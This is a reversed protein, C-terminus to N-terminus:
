IERSGCYFCSFPCGRIAFINKFASLPYLNYDKLVEPAAEHPFCLTDLNDIFERPPNEITEEGKRYVIGKVAGLGKHEGITNLLEVITREGEGKVCIDIDPCVLVDKGVMSPHPGGIVVITENNIEKVLKAINQVSAFNQSKSAIGVVIPEYKSIVTRIESWIPQSLDRLNKLYNIFGSGALYSVKGTVSNASFDANYVMINWDTEKKIIGALYGLSLPYRGLSYNDKYLRYFPPEVLLIKNTSM